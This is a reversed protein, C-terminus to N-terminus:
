KRKLAKYVYKFIDKPKNTKCSQKAQEYIINQIKKNKTGIYSMFQFIQEETITDLNYKSSAKTKPESKKPIIKEEDYVENLKDKITKDIIDESTKESIVNSININPTEIDDQLKAEMKVPNSIVLEGSWPALYYGNGNVELIAKLTTGEKLKDLIVNNLPPIIVSISKSKFKAPFGYEINNVEFRLSGKLQEPNIGSLQVEFDLTRTENINLTLM